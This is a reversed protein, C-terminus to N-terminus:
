MGMDIMTAMYTLDDDEVLEGNELLGELTEQVRLAYESLDGVEATLADTDADYNNNIWHTVIEWAKENTNM